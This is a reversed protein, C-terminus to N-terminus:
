GKLYFIIQMIIFLISTVSTVAFLTIAFTFGKSLSRAQGKDVELRVIEGNENIQGIFEGDKTFVNNDNDIIVNNYDLENPYEESQMKSIEADRDESNDLRDANNLGECRNKLREAYETEVNDINVHFKEETNLNVNARYGDGIRNVSSSSVKSRLALELMIPDILEKKLNDSYELTEKVHTIESIEDKYSMNIECYRPGFSNDWVKLKLFGELSDNKEQRISNIIKEKVSLINELDLEGIGMTELKDKDNDSLNTSDIFKKLEEYSTIQGNKIMTKILEIMEDINNTAEVEKIKKLEELVYRVEDKNPSELNNEVVKQINYQGNNDTIRFVNGKDDTFELENM